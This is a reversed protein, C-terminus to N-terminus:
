VKKVKGDEDKIKCESCVQLTINDIQILFWSECSDWIRENGCLECQFFGDNPRLGGVRTYYKWYEM